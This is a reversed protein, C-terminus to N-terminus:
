LHVAFRCVEDGQLVSKVIDVRVPRDLVKEWINKCWGAGCYCYTPSIKGTVKRVYDCHCFYYRKKRPTKAKRYEEPSHPAKTIYVINDKREPKVMFVKGHMLDLLRDIDRNKAYELRFEEIHEDYCRCSCDAMIRTKVAEDTVCRDLKEMASKVWAASAREDMEALNEGGELIRDRKIPGVFQALSNSLRKYWSPNAM